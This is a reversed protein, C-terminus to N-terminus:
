AVVPTGGAIGDLRIARECLMGSCQLERAALFRHAWLERDHSVENLRLLLCGLEDSAEKLAREGIAAAEDIGQVIVQSVVVDNPHPSPSLSPRSRQRTSCENRFSWRPLPLRLSPTGLVNTEGDGDVTLDSRPLDPKIAINVGVTTETSAAVGIANAGATVNSGRAGGVVCDATGDVDDGHGREDGSGEVVSTETASDAQVHQFKAAADEIAASMQACPSLSAETLAEGDGTVTLAIALSRLDSLRSLLEYLHRTCAHSVGDVASAGALPQPAVAVGSTAPISPVLHAGPPQTIATSARHGDSFPAVMADDDLPNALSAGGPPAGSPRVPAASFIIGCPSAPDRTRWLAAVFLRLADEQQASTLGSALCQRTCLAVLRGPLEELTAAFRSTPGQLDDRSSRNPGLSTRLSRPNTLLVHPSFKRHQLARPTSRAARGGPSLQHGRLLTELNAEELVPVQPVSPTGRSSAGLPVCAAASAVESARVTESGAPPARPVTAALGPLPRGVGAVARSAEITVRLQLNGCQLETGKWVRLVRKHAQGDCFDALDLQAHGLLGGGDSTVELWCLKKEFMVKGDHLTGFLSCSIPVARGWRVCGNEQVEASGTSFVQRGKRWAVSVSRVGAPVQTAEHVVLRFRCPITGPGASSVGAM